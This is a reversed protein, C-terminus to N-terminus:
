SAGEADALGATAAAALLVAAVFFDDALAPAAEAFFLVGAFGCVLPPKGMTFSLGFSFCGAHKKQFAGIWYENGERRMRPFCPRVGIFCMSKKRKREYKANKKV